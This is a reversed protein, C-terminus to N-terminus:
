VRYYRLTLRFKLHFQFRSLNMDVIQDRKLYIMEYKWVSNKYKLNYRRRHQRNTQRDNFRAKWQNRWLKSFQEFAIDKIIFIFSKTMVSMMYNYIRQVDYFTSDFFVFDVVARFTLVEIMLVYRNILISLLRNCDFIFLIWYFRHFSFISSSSRFIDFFSQEDFSMFAFNLNQNSDFDIAHCNRHFNIENTDFDFSKSSSFFWQSFFNWRRTLVENLRERFKKRMEYNITMTFQFVHNIRHKIQIWLKIQRIRRFDFVLQAFRQTINLQIKITSIYNENNKRNIQFWFVIHDVFFFLFEFMFNAFVKINKMFINFIQKFMSYVKHYILDCDVRLSSKISHIVFCFDVDRTM